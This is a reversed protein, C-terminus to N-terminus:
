CRLKDSLRFFVPLWPTWGLVRLVTQRAQEVIQCPLKVMANVFTKFEMALLTRRQAEHREKWPPHVPVLLAAWAKLTWALSTMVMWAWNSHLNDVPAAIARVGGALQAVLNEQDCRDNCQFVVDAAPCQRDNTIYFFYRIQDFLAQEGKEQTINKRVVIMRYTTKCAVPRYEFEAVQESKLELHLFERRRIVQRKVRPPKQRPPGEREYKPPRVLRKWASEPLDEAIRKLNPLADYGFYFTIGDANWRDLHETQSFDTDGRFVISRFGARRCLAAARDAEAAAGEHSPRNGPRNVLSLVERTGALSVVLPHYGWEGKYSIDMGQKCEGTTIAFTGDMDIVAEDFFEDPQQKWVNLRAEDIADLLSRIHGDSRFRRCFDGATTPDPITEAGLADLFAEDQRRLEIDELCTGECLANVAFNLVHDSEHYPLHIKLLQVHRDIAEVLGVCHAIKVLLPVGGYAVGRSRDSLEYKLGGTNMVPRDVGTNKAERKRRRALRREIRRKRRALRQHIIRKV